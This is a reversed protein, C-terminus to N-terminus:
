RASRAPCAEQLGGPGHATWLYFNRIRWVSVAAVFDAQTAITAKWAVEVDGARVTKPAEKQLAHELARVEHVAVAKEDIPLAAHEVVAAVVVLVPQMEEVVIKVVDRAAFLVLGVKRATAGLQDVEDGLLDFAPLYRQAAIDFLEVVACEFVAATGAFIDHRAEVFGVEREQATGRAFALAAGDM